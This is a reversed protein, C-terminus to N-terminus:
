AGAAGAPGREPGAPKRPMKPRPIAVAILAARLVFHGSTTMNLMEAMSRGAGTSLSSKLPQNLDVWPAKRGAINRCALDWDLQLSTMDVRLTMERTATAASPM